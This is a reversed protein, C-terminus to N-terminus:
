VLTNITYKNIVKKILVPDSKAFKILQETNNINHEKIIKKIEEIVKLEDLKNMNDILQSNFYKSVVEKFKNYNLLLTEDVSTRVVKNDNTVVLMNFSISTTLINEVLEKENILKGSIRINIKNSSYDNLSLNNEEAFKKLKNVSIPIGLIDYTKDDVKKYVTQFDIKAIGKKLLTKLESNSSKVIHNKINPYIVVEKPVKDLLFKMRDILAKLTFQPIVTKHFAIGQNIDDGILGVPIPSPLFEPEKEFEYNIWDVYNIFKFALESIWDSIKVETYRSAAPESPVLGNSGFNGQGDIYGLNVLKVLTGYADSHPHYQGMCYGLVKASKTYHKAIEFTSLLVRREVPRLLDIYYPIARFRSIYRGYESYLIPLIKKM